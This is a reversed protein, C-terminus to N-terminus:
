HPCTCKMEVDRQNVAKNEIVIQDKRGVSACRMFDKIEHSHNDHTSLRGANCGYDVRISRTRVNV